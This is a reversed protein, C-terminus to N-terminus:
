GDVGFDGITLLQMQGWESGVVLYRGNSSFKLRFIQWSKPCEYELVIQGTAIEFIQITYPGGRQRKASNFGIAVFSNDPSLQVIAQHASADRQLVVRNDKINLVQLM